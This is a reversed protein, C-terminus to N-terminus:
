PVISKYPHDTSLSGELGWKHALYGEVKQRDFETLVSDFILVESINGSWTPVSTGSSWKLGLRDFSNSGSSGSGSLNDTGDTAATYNGAADLSYYSLQQSTESRWSSADIATLNPSTNWYFNDNTDFYPILRQNTGAFLYGAGDEVVFIDRATDLSSVFNYGDGAGDFNLTAEGNATWGNSSYTAQLNGTSQSAHNDQGSKDSWLSVNDSADLTLTSLDSADLWMALSLDSPSWTVTANESSVIHWSSGLSMIKIFGKRYSDLSVDYGQIGELTVTNQDSSKHISYLRGVLNDSSPLTLHINDSSSDVFVMSNESLTTNSSVTEINFALSGIIQLTSHGQNASSLSLDNTLLTNGAVHLNATASLDPGIALGQSNLKMQYTGDLQNSFEIQGQTSRVNSFAISSFLFFSIFYYYM